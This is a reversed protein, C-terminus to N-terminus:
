VPPYFLCSPFLFAKFLYCTFHMQFIFHSYLLSMLVEIFLIVYSLCSSSEDKSYSIYVFIYDLPTDALLVKYIIEYLKCSKCLCARPLLFHKNYFIDMNYFSESHPLYKLLNLVQQDVIIIEKSKTMM